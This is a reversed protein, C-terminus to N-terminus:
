RRYSRDAIAYPDPGHPRDDPAKPPLAPAKPAEGQEVELGPMEWVALALADARDPSRGLSEKKRLEDKPTAKQKGQVTGIWSPAHLEQGLKGDLPIIADRMWLALSGWLEDRMRDYVLPERLYKQDSSRIRVLIFPPRDVPGLADLYGFILAFVRAGEQGESDIKVIPPSERADCHDRILELLLSLHGEPTLGRRMILPLALKGRRLAFGSEDGGVGPGAPDIGIHLRGDKRSFTPAALEGALDTWRDQAAVILAIAIIKGEEHRVFRGRARIQYFPSDEGYELKWREITELDAIGPVRLGQKALKRAVKEADITWTFFHDRKGHFADFFPGENRTPQSIMIIKGRGALNGVMAEFILQELASAEDVIYLIASAADPNFLDGGSVGSVAEPDRVTSGRIERLDYSTLGTRATQGLMGITGKGHVTEYQRVIRTLERFMVRNVQYDTRATLIVRANPFSLYWWLAIFIVAATKGVKQGSAIAIQDYDRVAELIVAQQELVHEIGLVTHVFGVPDRQWMPSPWKKGDVRALLASAMRAVDAELTAARAGRARTM